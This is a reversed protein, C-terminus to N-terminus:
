GGILEYLKFGYVRTTYAGNITGTQTSNQRGYLVITAVGSSISCSYPYIGYATTNARTTATGNSSLKTNWKATAITAGSKTAQTSSATLWIWACTAAHRSNTKTDVSTEVLFADYADIKSSSSGVTVSKSLDTASTATINQTGLSTEKLLTGVGGSGSVNVVVSALNTVDYTNNSTINQSGSVLESAAVSVGSGTKTGGEIYGTTNTVSPTVTVSHNSVTGKSATPTGATGSAVAKTVDEAYSGALVTVSAGSISVDSATRPTPVAGFSETGGGTKPLNVSPVNTYNQGLLTIDAM